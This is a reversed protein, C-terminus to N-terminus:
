RGRAAAIINIIDQGFNAWKHPGVGKIQLFEDRTRPQRSVFAELIENSFVVYPPVQRARAQETRYRRLAGALDGEELAAAVAEAAEGLASAAGAEGAAGGRARRAGGGAARGGAAGTPAARGAAAARWGGGAEAPTPATAPAPTPAPAAARARLAPAAAPLSPPLAGRERAREASVWQARLRCTLPAAGQMVAYGAPTIQLTKYTTRQGDRQSHDLACLGHATLLKLLEDCGSEGLHSLIGWTSLRRLFTQGAEQEAGVLM